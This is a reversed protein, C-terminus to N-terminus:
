KGDCLVSQYGADCVCNFANVADVCAGHVCPSSACEDIDEALHSVLWLGNLLQGPCQPFHNKNSNQLMGNAM